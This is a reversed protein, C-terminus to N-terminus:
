FTGSGSETWRACVAWPRRDGRRRSLTSAYMIAGGHVVPVPPLDISSRKVPRRALYKEHVELVEILAIAVLRHSIVTSGCDFM